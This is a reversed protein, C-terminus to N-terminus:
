QIDGGSLVNTVYVHYFKATSLYHELRVVPRHRLRGPCRGSYFSALLSPPSREVPFVYSAPGPIRDFTAFLKLWAVQNEDEHEISFQGNAALPLSNPRSLPTGMFLMNTACWTFIHLGPELRVTKSRGDNKVVLRGAELALVAVGMRCSKNRSLCRGQGSRRRCVPRRKVRYRDVCLMESVEPNLQVEEDSEVITVVEIQPPAPDLPISHVNPM